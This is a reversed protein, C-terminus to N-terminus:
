AGAEQHAALIIRRALEAYVEPRRSDNAVVEAEIIGYSTALEDNAHGVGVSIWDRAENADISNGHSCSGVPPLVRVDFDGNHAPRVRMRLFNHMPGSIHSGRFFDGDKTVRM